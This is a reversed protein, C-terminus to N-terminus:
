LNKLIGYLHNTFQQKEEHPWRPPDTYLKGIQRMGKHQEAKRECYDDDTYGMTEIVINNETGGPPIATLIFDPLVFGKEGEHDVEIDFVPKKLSLAPPTVGKLKHIWNAAEIISKITQRELGSDVPLPCNRRFLAHAYGENCVIKGDDARLFSLIVWYPPRLGDQMEGNISIEKNPRFEQQGGNFTFIAIERSIQDSMFIQYFIRAKGAPWPKNPQELKNMLNEQAALSMTPQLRVIESLLRGRIFQHQATVMNLAAIAERAPREPMPWLTDIVNLGAAEILTLLLRALRPLQTRQTKDEFGRAAPTPAKLTADSEEHPLFDRYNVPKSGSQRRAGIATTKEDGKILRFMPCDKSHPANFGALFLTQTEQMLKASNMPTEDGPMCGCSLWVEHQRMEKLVALATEKDRASRVKGLGCVNKVVDEETATLERYLAGRPAKKRVLQMAM